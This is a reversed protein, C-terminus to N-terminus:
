INMSTKKKTNDTTKKLCIILNVLIILSMLDIVRTM